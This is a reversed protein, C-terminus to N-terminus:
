LKEGVKKHSGYFGTQKVTIAFLGLDDSVGFAVTKNTESNSIQINASSIITNNVDKVIGHIITQSSITGSFLFLLFALTFYKIKL